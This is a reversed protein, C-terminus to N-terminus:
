RNGGRSGHHSSAGGTPVASTLADVVGPALPRTADAYSAQPLAASEEIKFVHNTRALLVLRVGGRAHALARADGVTVQADTEGQVVVTPVALARLLAVPELDIASRLFRAVAPNFLPRLPPAVNELPRDHRVADLHADVQQMQTADLQRALQERVVVGLPRGATALLALADVHTRAAALLAILGGESHGAVTISATRPDRRVTEIWAVADGVFDDLTTDAMRFDAGSAGVGRKDFRASAIGRAALAEALLRYADTRLGGGQNGDRDTPGSGAIFVVVPLAGSANAPRWLVGRTTVGHASAELPEEIVGSPATRAAEVHPAVGEPLVEVSQAPITVHAVAGEADVEANVELAGITVRVDRWGPHTASARVTLQAPVRVDRAPLLMTVARPENADPFSEAALAYAQWDGNELAITDAGVEREVHTGGHVIHVRRTTRDHDLTFDVGSFRIESHVRGGDDSYRQRGIEAGRVYAVLTGTRTARPPPSSANSGSGNNAPPASASSSAGQQAGCSAIVALAASAVFPGRNALRESSRM